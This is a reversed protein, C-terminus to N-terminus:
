HGTNNTPEVPLLVRILTGGLAGTEIEIRGRHADIIRRCIALGLGLGGPRGDDSRIQYFASFIKERQDEPIGPGADEVEFWAEGPNQGGRLSVTAGQASFRIANDLLNCVVQNLRREEGKLTADELLPEMRIAVQVSKARSRYALDGGALLFNLSIEEEAHVSMPDRDMRALFLMDDVMTGLHAASTRARMLETDPREDLGELYREVQLLPKKLEHRIMSFFAERECEAQAELTRRYTIDQLTIVAGTESGELQFPRSIVSLPRDLEVEVALETRRAEKQNLGLSRCVDVAGDESSLALLDRALANCKLLNGFEDLLIVGVPVMELIGVVEKRTVSLLQRLRDQTELELVQQRVVSGETEQHRTFEAIEQYADPDPDYRYIGREVRLIGCACLDDLVPQLNQDPKGFRCSFESLTGELFPNGHLESVLHQKLDVDAACLRSLLSVM